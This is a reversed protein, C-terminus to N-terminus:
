RIQKKLKSNWKLLRRYVIWDTPILYNLQAKFRSALILILTCLGVIIALGYIEKLTALLAQQHLDNLIEQPAFSTNSMSALLATHEVTKIRLLRTYIAACVPNGIGTRVFGLLCLAQFFHQFPVIKQAYVTVAIYVVVNGMGLFFVPLFIREINVAADLLFYMAVLYYVVFLFGAFTLQKYTWSLHTLAYRSFLAGVAIGLFQPINLRVTTTPQWHLIQATFVTQLSTQASLLFCLLLFLLLMSSINPYRFLRYELYPHRIHKMRGLNLGVALFAISAASALAAGSWQLYDGYVAVASAAGLAIAWLVAGLWDIGLLLMPPGMRFPRLLLRVLLCVTLLLAIDLINMAKWTYAYTLNTAVFGTIQIFGVVTFYIVPFFIAFDRKRTIGTMISSMCEFMGWIRLAGSIFALVVLLPVQLNFPQKEMLLMFLLNLAAMSLTVATLIGKTTYRFKLRFLLPFIVTMGIFSAYFMMAIDESLLQTEGVMQQMDAMYVVDSLRFVAVFLYFIAFGVWRNIWPRMAPTSFPGQPPAAM